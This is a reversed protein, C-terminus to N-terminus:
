PVPSSCGSCCRWHWRWRYRWRSSRCRCPSCDAVSLELLLLFLLLLYYYPCSCCCCHVAFAVAVAAVAVAGGVALPLGVDVAVAVATFPLPLLLPLLLLPLPSLLLLLSLPLAVAVAALAVAVAVVAVVGAVAVAVNAVVVAVAVAVPAIAVPVVVAIAVAVSAGALAVAIAVAAVAVAIAVAVAVVVVAVAVAAVAAVAVAVGVGVSAFALFAIPLMVAVVVQVEIDYASWQSEDGHLWQWEFDPVEQEEEEPDATDVADTTAAGTKSSTADDIDFSCTPLRWFSFEGFEQAALATKDDGIAPFVEHVLEHLSGYSEYKCNYISLTGSSNITFIKHDPIGVVRYSKADTERNGFGAYYPNGNPFVNRVTELAAIKFEEPKRLIVERTLAAFVRDPSVILPGDPLVYGGQKVSALFGRTQAAQSVSRSSLYMVKYGNDVISTYLSCIGSHSWDWGLPPLIQGLVDSRTVTGDVDSIVVRTDEPWLYVRASIKQLGRLTTKVLFSITNVGDKLQLQHLQGSSPFTTKKLKLQPCRRALATCLARADWFHEPSSGTCVTLPAAATATTAMTMAAAETPM